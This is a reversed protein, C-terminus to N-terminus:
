KPVKIREDTTVQFRRFNSYASVVELRDDRPRAPRWYRERMEIPVLLGLVPEEAYRVDFTVDFASAAGGATLTVSLVRGTAPEVVLSGRSFLDHSGGGAKHRIVSPSRFEEFTLADASQAFRFGSAVRPHLVQLPLLPSNLTRSVGINYRASEKAIAQAQEVASRPTELFLKRLRDERNRVATRDVEIVDRFALMRESGVKVLLFDSTLDRQKKVTGDPRVLRQVQREECVVASFAKDCEEVYRGARDLLDTLLQGPTQARVEVGAVVLALSLALAHRKM